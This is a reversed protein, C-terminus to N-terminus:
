AALLLHQRQGAPQHRRRADEHDVLWRDPERRDQDVARDVLDLLQLVAELQGDQHGFLIEVLRDADGIAAVDDHVALDGEFAAVGVLEVVVLEDALKVQPKLAGLWGTMALSSGAMWSFSFMSGRSLSPFSPV